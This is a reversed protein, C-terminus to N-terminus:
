SVTSWRGPETRTDSPWPASSSPLTASCAPLDQRDRNYGINDLCHGWGDGTAESHVASSAPHISPHSSLCLM